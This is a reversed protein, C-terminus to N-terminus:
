AAEALARRRGLPLTFSFCAGEGQASTVWIRGGFHEVIRRCIHLGLGSGQPKGSLSGGAQRFKEFVAEHQDPPIGVGNDRVDVRLEDGERGLSVEVMGRGAESFKVANSLLNMLVQTIRDLDTRVQPVPAALRCEIRVGHERFLQSTAAVTDEIVQRLDVLSENWAARGSELRSLDLIQNILRTLRETEKIIISLFRSREGADLRPHDHLIESFARISTLPTRLEHSVTSVFDDKLRDLEQLRENAARLEQTARELEQSKQELKHSYVIVQSAEDLLARVEELSLAEEKVVSAVLIRASSAGVVGALQMEVFNVLEADAALGEPKRPTGRERQHEALAAAAADIGMFRALLSYLDPVSATGRWFRAQGGEPPRKFVDVFLSAQRHEEAGPVFMLSVAVYAGVNAAMSWIMAHTIQDLGGIGFLALPKLLEIGFPGHDLLGLPLWGSRAFAPILLTYLWVAFGASLGALAGLRTGGKWFIGGLAVPAFQAVAAFSILGISVLAYAEGALRFYVYGLLLILVIAGRRIGLLLGSLDKKEQLRLWRLRLLVPMVLDNCAMTSLAITEVIVMGTAASLGGIYVFLALLEQREAMPLTLVFTDADVAGDGFHLRGGFALPLVFVNIALMYLPLMWIAKKLHQEDKNEVVTVQFQRPLFMIALMSLITLWVWSAYGGAVGDLPALLPRLGPDAAARSFIDGFGDFLGWTVWAGVAVFAVLKVLSEFAIAAVMGEHHEAADLHRTGFLITFAALLLAMSLATDHLVPVTGLKAPMVIEPHQLVITFANSIAKLQLSIYPLIGIIAIVTVVGGLLASKGYRSAVFDALSTIRNQKSIRLIKRMVIWWLAIMLTPGIYIPLFGVGNAAARGVSGYFTWATAYVALSLSYIYPSAIVSRGADARQDAYYAIAFLLGLYAFSAVVVVWGELM